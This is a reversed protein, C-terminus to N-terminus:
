LLFVQNQWVLTAQEGGGNARTKLQVAEKYSSFCSALIALEQKQPEIQM